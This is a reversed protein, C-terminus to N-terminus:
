AMATKALARGKDTIKATGADHDVTVFGQREWDRMNELMFLPFKSSGVQDTEDAIRKMAAIKSGFMEIERPVCNDPVLAYGRQRKM